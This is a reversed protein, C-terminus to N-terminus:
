SNRPVISESPQAMVAQLAVEWDPLRLGWVEAFRDSCLCSRAPRHAGGMEARTTPTANLPLGRIRAAAAIWDWASTEGTCALHFLGTPGGGAVLLLGKAVLSAPTPRGIQDTVLALSAGEALRRLALNFFGRDGPQYVWQVRVVSAGAKIAAHEGALKGRAYTSRPHPALTETLERDPSDFVYDTSLHVLRIGREACRAALAAVAVANVTFSRAPETEALNVNAQAAANIVADPRHTDLAALVADPDTIDLAARPLGIVGDGGAEVLASGILGGAGTVLITM